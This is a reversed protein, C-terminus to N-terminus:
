QVRASTREQLWLIDPNDPNGQAPTGGTTTARLTRPDLWHHLEAHADAFALMTGFSHDTGPWDFVRVPQTEMCVRFTLTYLDMSDKHMLLWLNAPGPRTIDSLRGYTRWPGVIAKNGNRGDMWSADVAAAVQAKTGASGNVDYSRMRLFASGGPDRWTTKDAPCRWTGASRIYPALKARQPDLLWDINTAQPFNLGGSVWGVPNDLVNPPLWDNADVTYM